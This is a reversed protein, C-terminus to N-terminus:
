PVIVEHGEDSYFDIWDQQEEDSMASWCPNCIWNSGGYSKQIEIDVDPAIPGSCEECMLTWDLNSM